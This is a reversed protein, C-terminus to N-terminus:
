LMQLLDSRDSQGTSTAQVNFRASAIWPLGGSVQYEDLGYAGSILDKLSVNRAVLRGHSAVIRSGPVSLMRQARSPPDTTPDVPKISAVEFQLSAASETQSRAQAWSLPVTALSMLTLVITLKSKTM